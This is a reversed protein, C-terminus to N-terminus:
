SENMYRERQASSMQAIAAELKDGSLRDINAFEDGVDGPGDGGPVQSLTKPLADTPAKRTAAKAPEAAPAKSPAPAIGHLASVRRHAEALFWEADKDEHVPNQALVKVFSDLDNRKSEDSMYDIGGDKATVKFFNKITFQWEQMASQSSMEQAIEAKNKASYLELRAKELARTQVQFHDFDIDGSKFQAALGDIDADIKGMKADLDAPVQAVYQPRFAEEREHKEPAAEEPPKSQGNLTAPDTNDGGNAGNDADGDDDDNEGGEDDDGNAIAELAKRNAEAAGDDDLIVAREEATLTALDEESYTGM